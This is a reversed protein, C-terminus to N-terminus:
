YKGVKRNKIEAFIWVIVPVIVQFPIAYYMYINFAWNRMEMINDYIFYSLYIMLLGTQIVVSRYDSLNFVRGIGRCAVFLCVSIKTFAATAFVFAVTVEIRQLFDGVAIQSVALHSPFYLMGISKGLIVINRITLIVIVTGAFSLGSFYVKMSSKKTKLAFLVGIFIVTEAFPFTFASFGAKLVPTFGNYLIPKIYNFHFQPIAMLQVFIIIVLVPVLLYASMRGIVEIGLRVAVICVLGLSFLIVFMPTGPMALTNVFEGFNRTVLVGLHFSYWIYVLSVLKGILKGFVINLIEFLDKGPFISVIRSYVFLMPVSFLMGVIAALWADNKAEGAIGMILTSGMIFLIVICIAEKDSIQEKHM